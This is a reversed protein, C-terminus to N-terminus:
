RSGYNPKVGSNYPQYLPAVPAAPQEPQYPNAFPDSNPNVGQPAAVNEYPVNSIYPYAVNLLENPQYGSLDRGILEEREVSRQQLPVPRVGYQQLQRDFCSFVYISMLAETLSCLFVCSVLISVLFVIVAIATADHNIGLAKALPISVLTPILTSFLLGTFFIFSCASNLV